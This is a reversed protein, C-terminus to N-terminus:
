PALEVRGAMALFGRRDAVWLEASRGDDAPKGALTFPASDFIPRLARFSFATVRAQPRHRRVLDVMLTALLPGHVVLGPYGEVARAYDLDYHIRHGNFTLASYRFLFPPDATVERRWPAASM